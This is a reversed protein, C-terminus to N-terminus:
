LAGGEPRQAQRERHSQRRMEDLSPNGILDVHAGSIVRLDITCIHELRRKYTLPTRGYPNDYAARYSTVTSTRRVAYVHLLDIGPGIERVGLRGGRDFSHRETVEALAGDLSTAKIPDLLGTGSLDVGFNNGFAFAEYARADPDFAVARTGTDIVSALHQTV